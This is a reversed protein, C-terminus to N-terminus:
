GLENLHMRGIRELMMPLSVSKLSSCNEFAFDGIEKISMPLVVQHLCDCDAFAGKGM